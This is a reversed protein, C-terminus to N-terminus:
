LWILRLATQTVFLVLLMLAVLLSLAAIGNPGLKSVEVILEKLARVLDVM